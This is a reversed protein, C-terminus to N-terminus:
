LLLLHPRAASITTYLPTGAHYEPVRPGHYALHVARVSQLTRATRTKLKPMDAVRTSRFNNFHNFLRHGRAFNTWSFIFNDM